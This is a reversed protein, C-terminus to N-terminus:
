FSIGTQMFPGSTATENTFGAQNYDYKLYRWGLQTWIRRTVQIELGGQVQYSWDSSDVTERVITPGKRRHIAFADGSNADFGGVDGEVYLSIPKWLKVKGRAGIVPDVWGTSGSFDLKRRLGLLQRLRDLRADGNDFISLNSEMYTYRAGAFLTVSAKDCNMLRYGVFGELIASKLHLDATTFFLDRLEVSDGLVLYQGDGFFEWRQYCIGGAVMIPVHTLHNFIGHFPFDITSVVGKVGTEGSLGAFWAPLAIQLEFPPPPECWSKAIIPTEKGKSYDRVVSKGDTEDRDAPPRPGEADATVNRISCLLTALCFAVVLRYTTKM